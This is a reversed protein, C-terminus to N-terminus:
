TDWKVIINIPIEGTNKIPHALKAVAVLDANAYLGVQTIYPALYSGTPDYSSSHQYDFFDKKIMPKNFKGTKENLFNVIDDYNNRKSLPGTYNKYNNYTLQKTFYKWILYGDQINVTGDKNVDFDKNALTCKLTDTLKNNNFDTISSTYYMFMSQEVDSTIFTKWWEEVNPTTIKYNIYRLIIDLNEFDFNIKNFIGYNILSASIATPNASVNFEGPEIKCIYQKEHLTLQSEYDMYFYPLDYNTPDRTLNNFISGTNNIVIRNNNYFVNGVIYNTQLDDFDYIFTNGTFKQVVDDEAKLVIVAKLPNQSYVTDEIQYYIVNSSLDCDESYYSSTLVYSPYIASGSETIFPFNIGNDFLTPLPAGVVVNVDSISVVSGFATFPKNYEKRKSIPDTTLKKAEFQTVEYLASQGSYTAEGFNNEQFYKDYRNISGSLYLSGFPFNPKPSGIIVRNNFTSVSYGFWNDKFLKDDGFTKSVFSFNNSGTLCVLDSYIYAAGRQRLVSSGTYEYYKLANPAGIVITNKHISVSLGFRDNKQSASLSSSPIIDWNQGDLKLYESGTIQEFRQSINWGNSGSKFLFVKGSSTQNCGVLIKDENYKDVSVSYGFNIQNPDTTVSSSLIAQLKYTFIEDNYKYVFVKGRGSLDGPAGIVLFNNSISVSKGFYTNENSSTISFIPTNSVSYTDTTEKNCSSVLVPQIHNSSATNFYYNPNIEYVSVVSQTILTSDILSRTFNTDSVALFYDTIDLSEGFNSYFVISGSAAAYSSSLVRITSYNTKFDNKKILFVQGIKSFGESYNWETSPPNGVAILNGNTAVSSGYLENYTNLLSM